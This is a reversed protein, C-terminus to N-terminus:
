LDKRKSINKVSNREVVCSPILRQIVQEPHDWLTELSDFILDVYCDFDAGVTTLSPIFFEGLKGGGSGIVSIDDPVKYGHENLACIASLATGDSLVFVATFEPRKEELYASLVDRTKSQSNEGHEVRCDLVEVRCGAADAFTLFGNKRGSIVSNHPESVLLLMRRHGNNYLYSAAKIGNQLPSSAVGNIEIDEYIRGMVLLPIPCLGIHYVDETTLMREPILLYADFGTSELQRFSWALPYNVRRVQVNRAEGAHRILEEVERNSASPWDPVLLGLQKRDTHSEGRLFLTGDPRRELVGERELRGLARTVSLQSTEYRRMLERISGARSGVPLLLLEERLPEYIMDSKRKKIM